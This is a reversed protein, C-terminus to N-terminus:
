PKDRGQAITPQAAIEALADIAMRMGKRLTDISASESMKILEAIEADTPPQAADPKADTPAAPAAITRIAERLSDYAPGSLPVNFAYVWSDVLRKVDKAAESAPVPAAFHRLYEQSYWKRGNPQVLVNSDLSWGVPLEVGGGAPDLMAAESAPMPEAVNGHANTCRCVSFGCDSCREAEAPSGAVSHAALLAKVDRLYVLPEPKWGKAILSKSGAYGPEYYTKTVDNHKFELLVVTLGEAVVAPVVPHAALRGADYVNRIQEFTVEYLITSETYESKTIGLRKLVACMDDISTFKQTLGEAVVPAAPTRNAIKWGEKFCDRERQTWGMLDASMAAELAAQCQQENSM